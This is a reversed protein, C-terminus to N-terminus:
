RRLLSRLRARVGSGGPSRTRVLDLVARRRLSMLGPVKAAAWVRGLSADSLRRALDELAADMPFWWPDVAESRDIVVTRPRTYHDLAPEGSAVGSGSGKVGTWPAAPM